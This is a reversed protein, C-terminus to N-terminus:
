ASKHQLHVMFAHVLIVSDGGDFGLIALETLLQVYRQGLIGQQQLSHLLQLRPEGLVAM